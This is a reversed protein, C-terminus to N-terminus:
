CREARTNLSSDLSNIAKDAKRGSASEPSFLLHSSGLVVQLPSPLHGIALLQPTLPFRPFDLRVPGGSAHSCLCLALLLFLRVNTQPRNKSDRLCSESTVLGQGLQWAPENWNGGSFVESTIGNFACFGSILLPLLEGPGPRARGLPQPQPWPRSARFCLPPSCFLNGFLQPSTPMSTLFGDPHFCM